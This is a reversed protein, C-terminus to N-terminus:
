TADDDENMTLASLEAEFARILEGGALGRGQADSLAEAVEALSHEDFLSRYKWVLDPDGLGNALQLALYERLTQPRFSRTNPRMSDLINHTHM